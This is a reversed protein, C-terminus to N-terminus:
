PILNKLWGFAVFTGIASGLSTFFFVLLLRALSNRWWGRWDLIDDGVREMDRVQPSAVWVQVLAAVMGAGVTPNLSTIPAAIFSAIVTLPHARAIIAGLACLIGNALVWAVAAEQAKSTDGRWFGWVFLGIVIAPILWPIIKSVVSKPPITTISDIAEQAIPEHLKRLIGPKHAAGIVVAVKEGAAQQIQHAMFTDREDVLATKVEPMFDGLEDLVSTINGSQRLNALEDENVETREFLGMGLSAALTSRKWFPTLRWARQLTIRVDRDCMILRAGQAEAVDIAANMEAGPQVGTYSGMQKQFAMLALRATLFMLQKNRIVQKLNLEEWRQKERMAKLREDDLEVCVVDPREAELIERVLDVSQQSIHATGILLVEKEGLQVRTVDTEQEQSM